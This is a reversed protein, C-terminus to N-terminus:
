LGAYFKKGDFHTGTTIMGHIAHLLKRMVAVKAQMKTKGNEVLHDSFAMVQPEYRSANHAPMFLGARLYKNGAKSIRTKGKFTGSEFHRPDLGAHAVWQRASLDQPLVCLEGYILIASLLGVGKLSTIRAVPTQLDPHQDILKAAQNQLQEIRRDLHRINVEIDNRIVKLEISSNAAHLRNKEQTRMQTLSAIRRGLARLQLKEPAPPHWPVFDMRQAYKRLVRADVPDTKSRHMLAQAFHRAARPNLVMVEIGEARYLAVALDLGYVGTSEMCVRVERGHRRLRQILKQHDEPTNDIEFESDETAVQLKKASVDIGTCLYDM